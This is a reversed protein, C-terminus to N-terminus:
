ADQPKVERGWLASEWTVNGGYVSVRKGVRLESDKRISTASTKYSIDRGM